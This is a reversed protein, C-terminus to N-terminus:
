QYFVHFMLTGFNSNIKTTGLFTYNDIGGPINNGTGYVRVEKFEKETQQTNVLAYIVIEENVTETSLLKSHLPVELVQCQEGAKLPFKWVSYM